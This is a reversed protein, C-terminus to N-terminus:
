SPRGVPRRQTAPFARELSPEIRVEQGTADSQYVATIMETARCGDWGTAGERPEQRIAGIFDALERVLSRECGHRLRFLREAVREAVYTRLLRKGDALVGSLCWPATEVRLWGETGRVDISLYGTPQNWSSRLEAFGQNFDRFLAYAEDECGRPLGVPERRYGKAAIIEGLFRRILDCAHPGNDMLTGGGSRDLATHWGGLFESTAKHGIEARVSEIRGVQWSSALELADRVPPYFRHNLGTALKLRLQDARLALQRAEEPHTTLPKECLVHKGAELAAMSQVFHDAHPTAVVVADVQPHDLAARFDATAAAGFRRAVTKARPLDTDVVGILRACGTAGVAAARQSGLYGAGLIAIGIPRAPERM